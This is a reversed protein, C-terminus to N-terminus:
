IVDPLFRHFTDLLFLYDIVLRAFGKLERIAIPHFASSRKPFYKRLQDQDEKLHELDARILEILLDSLSRRLKAYLVSSRDLQEFCKLSRRSLMAMIQDKPCDVLLHGDLNWEEHSHNSTLRTTLNAFFWPSLKAHHLDRLLRHKVSSIFLCANSFFGVPSLLQNSDLLTRLM